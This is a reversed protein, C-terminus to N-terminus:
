VSSSLSCNNHNTLGLEEGLMVEVHKEKCVNHLSHVKDEDMEGARLVFTRGWRQPLVICDSSSRHGLPVQPSLYTLFPLRNEQAVRHLHCFHSAKLHLPGKGSAKTVPAAM